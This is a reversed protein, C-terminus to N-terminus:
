GRLVTSWAAIVYYDFRYHWNNHSICCQKTTAVCVEFGRGYLFKRPTVLSVHCLQVKTAYSFRKASLYTGTFNTQFVLGTLYFVNTIVRPRFIEKQILIVKRIEAM